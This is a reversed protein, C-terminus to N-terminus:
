PAWTEWASKPKKDAKPTRKKTAPPDRYWRDVMASWWDFGHQQAPTLTAYIAKWAIEAESQPNPQPADVPAIEDPRLTPM